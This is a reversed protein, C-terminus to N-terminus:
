SKVKLASARKYAECNIIDFVSLKVRQASYGDERFDFELEMEKPNESPGSLVRVTVYQYRGNQRGLNLQGSVPVSAILEALIRIPVDVKITSM